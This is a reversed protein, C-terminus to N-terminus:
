NDSVPVATGVGAGYVFAPLFLIICEGEGKGDAFNQFAIAEADNIGPCLIDVFRGVLLGCFGIGGSCIDENGDM